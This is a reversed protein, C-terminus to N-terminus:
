YDLKFQAAMYALNKTARNQTHRSSKSTLSIPGFYTTAQDPSKTTHNQSMKILYLFLEGGPDCAFNFPYSISDYVVSSLWAQISTIGSLMARKTASAAAYAAWAV